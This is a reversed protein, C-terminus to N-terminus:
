LKNHLQFYQYIIFFCKGYRKNNINSIDKCHFRNTTTKDWNGIFLNQKLM